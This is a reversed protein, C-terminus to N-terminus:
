VFDFQETHVHDPAVDFADLVSMADTVMSPPGCIFYDLDEPQDLDSLVVSMLDISLGGIPGDWGDVPRRLVETVELNIQQRLEALEDRFLLDTPKSAIVILRYPRHDGRHAATRLMSMMPTFGVGGAMLVFGSSAGVDNTFAGHPGDVWVPAGPPLRRIARTFDGAHRITFETTESHSSSAITFPHEDSANRGLRIWAFQGPSFAWSEGLENGRRRPELVLTSITANERRVERVVFETSPDFWSRWTWRYGFIGLVVAAMLTLLSGMAPDRILKNLLWIHAGTAVMVTIALAVHSWRWLEYSMNLSKKFVALLVIAVVAVTAIVAAQARGPAQPFNLLLVNAPNAAVVAALHLLVMGASIIGLFRHLEIVNEIGFARNLSRLRSPLIVSCVLASTALLGTIISLKSWLTRGVLGFGAIEPGSFIWLLSPAIVIAGFAVLWASRLLRQDM